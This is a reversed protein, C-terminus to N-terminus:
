ADSAAARRSIEALRDADAAKQLDFRAVAAAIEAARIRHGTCHVRVTWHVVERASHEDWQCYEKSYEEPFAAALRRLAHKFRVQALELEEDDDLSAVRALRSPHTRRVIIYAPKIVAAAEPSMAMDIQAQAEPSLPEPPLPAPALPPPPEAPEAPPPEPAAPPESRAARVLRRVAAKIEDATPLSLAVRRRLVANAAAEADAGRRKAKKRATKKLESIKEVQKAAAKGIPEAMSWPVLPLGHLDCLLMGAAGYRCLLGCPRHDAHRDFLADPLSDIVAKVDRALGFSPATAADSRGSPVVTGTLGAFMISARQQVEALPVEALLQEQTDIHGKMQEAGATAARVLLPPLHHSCIHPNHDGPRQHSKHLPTLDGRHVLMATSQNFSM